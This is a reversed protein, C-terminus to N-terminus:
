ARKFTIEIRAPSLDQAADLGFRQYDLAPAAGTDFCFFVSFRYPKSRARHDDGVAAELGIGIHHAFVDRWMRLANQQPRGRGAPAVANAHRCLRTRGDAAEALEIAVEM